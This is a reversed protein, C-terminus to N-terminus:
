NTWDGTLEEPRGKGTGGSGPSYFSSEPFVIVHPLLVFVCNFVRGTLVGGRWPDTRPSECDMGISNCPFRGERKNPNPGTM